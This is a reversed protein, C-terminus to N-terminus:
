VVELKNIVIRQDWEVSFNKVFQTIDNVKLSYVSADIVKTNTDMAARVIQNVIFNGGLGINDIYSKINTKVSQRISTKEADSVNDSFVLSVKVEVPILVPTKVEAYIGAAKAEKVVAEVADLITQPTTLDDTIVYVTFSGTGKTYERMIVNKVGDVSLVKLRISTENAGAIVYVQNVIRSRYNADTEGSARTCNLLAGIMDLFQGKATSVFGMTTTLELEKYFDGFEESIIDVITRAISGPDLATVNTQTKLRNAISNSVETVSKGFIM